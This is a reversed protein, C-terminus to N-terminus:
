IQLDARTYLLVRAIMRWKSAGAGESREFEVNEVASPMLLAELLSTARLLDELSGSGEVVINVTQIIPSSEEGDLVAGGIRMEVGADRGVTEILDAAESVDIAALVELRSRLDATDRALAKIRVNANQKAESLEADTHLLAHEEHLTGISLAFYIVGAWSLLAAVLAIYSLVATSRARM